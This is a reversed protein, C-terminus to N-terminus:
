NAASRTFKSGRNSSQSMTEEEKFETLKQRNFHFLAKGIHVLLENVGKGTKASVEAFFHLGHTRMFQEGEERTVQRKYQTSPDDDIDVKNGILIFYTEKLNRRIDAAWEVLDSLSQKSDDDHIDLRVQEGLIRTARM